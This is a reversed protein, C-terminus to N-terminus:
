RGYSAVEMSPEMPPMFSKNVLVGDLYNGSLPKSLNQREFVSTKLNAQFVKRALRM